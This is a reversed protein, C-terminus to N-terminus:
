RGARRSLRMQFLVAVTCLAMVVVSLSSAYGLQPVSGSASGFALGYLYTGLVQTSNNPGGGTMVYILDFVKFGNMLNLALVIATVFRLSPLTVHRFRQLVGAGDVMAAENLGPDIGQIGAFFILMSMGVGQWVAVVLLAPIASDASGLWPHNFDEFGLKQIAANLTGFNPDYILRWLVGSVVFSVIGPMFLATRVVVSVPGPVAAVMAAIVLPLATQLVTTALAWGVTLLFARQVVPDGAARVFNDLGIFSAEGFGSWQATSLYFTHLIPYGVFLVFLVMTPLVFGYGAVM